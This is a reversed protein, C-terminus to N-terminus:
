KLTSVPRFGSNSTEKSIIDKRETGSVLQIKSSSSGRESISNAFVVQSDEDKLLIRPRAADRNRLVQDKREMATRDEPDLLTPNWKPNADFDAPAMLPRIGNLPQLPLTSPIEASNMMKSAANLSDSSDQDLEAISKQLSSARPSEVQVLPRYQIAPNNAASSSVFGDLSSPSAAASPRGFPVKTAEPDGFGTNPLIPQNPLIVGGNPSNNPNFTPNGLSPNAMGPNFPQTNFPQNNSGFGPTAGGNNAAPTSSYTPQGVPSVIAGPINPTPMAAAPQSCMGNACPSTMGNPMWSASPVVGSGLNQNMGMMAPMSTAYSPNQIVNGSYNPYAALPSMGTANLSGYNPTSYNPNSYTPSGYFANSNIAQNVPTPYTSIPLSSTPMGLSAGSNAMPAFASQSNMPMGANPISQYPSYAGYGNAVALGTPNYGPGTISPWKNAQFGYDGLIPRPAIVPVRQAQYQYSTCPQLSTVTTGYRPDFATVPRYYTVPTRGWQTDYGATPLTGAVTQPFGPGLLPANNTPPLNNVGAGYGSAWNGGVAGYGLSQNPQYAGFTNASYNPLTGYGLQSGANPAYSPPVYGYGPALANRSNPDTAYGSQGNLPVPTGVPYAPQMRRGLLSDLWPGALAPQASTIALGTAISAMFLRKASLSM